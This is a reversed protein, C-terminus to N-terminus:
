MSGAAKAEADYFGGGDGRFAADGRLTGTDPSILLAILPLFDDVERMANISADANLQAM